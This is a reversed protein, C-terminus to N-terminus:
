VAVGLALEGLPAQPPAFAHAALYLVVLGRDKTRETLRRWGAKIFCRGPDRKHHVQDPDVFTIFGASPPTGWLFRTAAVAEVILESSLHGLPDRPTRPRENRFAQCLWAGPWAHDVHKQYLSVWLADRAPTILVVPSGPPVFQRTGPQQRTYHRDAIAV